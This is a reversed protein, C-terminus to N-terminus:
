RCKHGLTKSEFTHTVQAWSHYEVAHKHLRPLM